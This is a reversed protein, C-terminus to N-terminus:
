MQSRWLERYILSFKEAAEDWDFKLANTFGDKLRRDHESKYLLHNIAERLSEQCNPDFFRASEGAVERFCAIDSCIVPCYNAQAELLPLGFGESQSPYIFGVAGRYERRLEEDSLKGRCEIRENVGLQKFLRKEACSLPSGVLHVGLQSPWGPDAMARLVVSFNKYSHRPGVYLLYPSAAQYPSEAQTEANGFHSGSLHVTRIKDSQGPLFSALTKATADTNTVVRDSDRVLQRKVDAEPATWHDMQYFQTEPTMDYITVVKAAPEWSCRHYYTPHYIMQRANIQLWKMDATNSLQNLIQRPKHRMRYQTRQNTQIVHIGDPIPQRASTQLWLTM